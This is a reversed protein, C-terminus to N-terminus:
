PRASEAHVLEVVEALIGIDTEPLVGHGLNFVHGTGSGDAAADALVQRTAAEVVAWPAGVCLAPDLNGQVAHDPGVRTRAEDLPVRWDVGVVDAGAEGMATLLEGTGVGFHVRPIGADALGALVKASHPMVLARYDRESLAGAWSDFLQVADVGADVQARLFTLTLDALHDLLAHWTAPEAHMLAKTREHNRSPGGEVLYSALTFPAGAFGILPTDGLEGVLQRVAQAVPDVGEPDLRPLAAVDADTRVPADIVPGTGAVIDVGVGAVKLPVVIDSFLIAADVGYRRVPQLTIECALDPTLCSELMGTGQRLERYEPLSRGAQRMFWVPLRDPTEGRAAALFASGPLARRNAPGTPGDPGAATSTTPASMVAWDAM